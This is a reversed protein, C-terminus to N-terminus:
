RPQAGFTEQQRQPQQSQGERLRVYTTLKNKNGKDSGGGRAVDVPTLGETLGNENENLLKLMMEAKPRQISAARSGFLPAELHAVREIGSPM